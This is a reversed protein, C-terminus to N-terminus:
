KGLDYLVYGADPFSIRELSLRGSSIMGDFIRADPGNETVLLFPRVGASLLRKIKQPDKVVNSDWLIGQPKGSFIQHIYGGAAYGEDSYFFSASHTWNIKDLASWLRREQPYNIKGVSRFFSTPSFGNTFVLFVLPVVLLVQRWLRPRVFESIQQLGNLVGLLLFALIPSFYRAGIPQSTTIFSLLWILAFHASAVWLIVTHAVKRSGAMGLVPLRFLPLVLLGIVLIMVLPRPIIHFDLLENWIYQFPVTFKNFQIAPFLGNAQNFWNSVVNYSLKNRVLWALIPAISAFLSILVWTSTDIKNSHAKLSWGEPYNKSFRYRWLLLGVLGIILAVVGLIIGRWQMPGIGPKANPLLDALLSLTILLGGGVSICIFFYKHTFFRWATRLVDRKLLLPAIWALNAVGTYRVMTSVALVLLFLIWNRKRDTETLIGIALFGAAISLAIFLTETWYYDHILIFPALCTFLILAVIRLLPSFKLRITLLYIVIYFFVLYASQAIIASVMPDRFVAIFPVLLLPFGPPQDVYPILAPDNVFNTASVFFFLHGSKLFNDAVTIYTTSDQSLDVHALWNLVAVTCIVCIVVVELISTIKLKNPTRLSKENAM